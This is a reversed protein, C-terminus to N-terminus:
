AARDGAGHEANLRAALQEALERHTLKPRGGRPRFEAVVRYCYASDHVYWITAPHRYGTRRASNGKVPWGTVSGVVFREAPRREMPAGTPNRHPEASVSAALPRAYGDGREASVM